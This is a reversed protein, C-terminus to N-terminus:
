RRSSNKMIEAGRDQHIGNQPDKPSIFIVTELGCVPGGLQIGPELKKLFMQARFGKLFYM